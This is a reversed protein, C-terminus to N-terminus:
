SNVSVRFSALFDSLIRKFSSALLDHDFFANLLGDFFILDAKAFSIGISWTESSSGISHLVQYSAIFKELHPKVYNNYSVLGSRLKKDLISLPANRLVGRLLINSWNIDNQLVIIIPDDSFAQKQRIVKGNGFLRAIKLHPELFTNLFVSYDAPDPLSRDNEKCWWHVVSHAFAQIWTCNALWFGKGIGRETKSIDHAEWLSVTIDSLEKYATAVNKMHRSITEGTVGGENFIRMLNDSYSANNKILALELNSM